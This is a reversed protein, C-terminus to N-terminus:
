ESSLSFFPFKQPFRPPQPSPFPISPTLNSSFVLKKSTVYLSALLVMGTLGFGVNIWTTDTISWWYTLISKLNAIGSRNSILEFKQRRQTVYQGENKTEKCMVYFSDVHAKRLCVAEIDRILRRSEPFRIFKLQGIMNGTSLFLCFPM